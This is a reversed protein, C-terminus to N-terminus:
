PSGGFCKLGGTESGVFVRGGALTPSGVTLPEEASVPPEINLPQKDLIHADGDDLVLLQGDATALFVRGAAWAPSSLLLTGEPLRTEWVKAGDGLQLKCVTGDRCAVIAAEGRVPIAGYVTDPTSVQWKRKGSVRDLAVVAGEPEMTAFGHYGRGCGVLLTGDALTVPSVAGLPTPTRWVVRSLGAAKLEADSQTRLAYVAAGTDEKDELPLGSGIYAIGEADIVPSSEPDVVDQRWLVAGDSIRMGLVYGPHEIQAHDNREIAGAGVVALNGAVAPTGLVHNDPVAVTWRVGGTAADLCVVQCQTDFEMGTGVLVSKGDASLVPSGMIGQFDDKGAASTEWLPKGSRADVCLVSGYTRTIDRTATAVYVKGDRVVPASTFNAGEKLYTWQLALSPPLEDDFCGTRRPDARFVAPSAGDDPPEPPTNKAACGALFATAVLLATWQYRAAINM